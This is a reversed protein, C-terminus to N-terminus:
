SSQINRNEITKKTETLDRLECFAVEVALSKNIHGRALSAENRVLAYIKDTPNQRILHEIMYSGGAGAGGTILIKQPQKSM